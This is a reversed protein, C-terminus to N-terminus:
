AYGIEPLSVDPNDDEGSEPEVVLVEQLVLTEIITRISEILHSCANEALTVGQIDLTAQVQVGLPTESSKMTRKEREKRGKRATCSPHIEVITPRSQIVIKIM